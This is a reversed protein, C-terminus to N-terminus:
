IEIAKMLNTNCINDILELKDMSLMKYNKVAFDRFEKRQDETLKELAAKAEPLPMFKAIRTALNDDLAVVRLNKEDADESELGLEKKFDLDEIYLIGKEFLYDVGPLYIAERLIDKEILMRAGKKAWSKHYHKEPISFGVISNVMNTVYVKENM